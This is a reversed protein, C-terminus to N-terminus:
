SHVKRFNVPTPVSERRDRYRSKESVSFPGNEDVSSTYTHERDRPERRRRRLGWAYTLPDNENHDDRVTVRAKTGAPTCM